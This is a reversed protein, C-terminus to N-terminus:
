NHKDTVGAQQITGFLYKQDPLHKMDELIWSFMPHARCLGAFYQENDVEGFDPQYAILHADFKVANRDLIEERVSLPTESISWTALFLGHIGNEIVNDLLALDSICLAGNKGGPYTDMDLMSIGISQLYYQQLASFPELDVIVYRGKFGLNFFLRCMSGYGGGFEVVTGFRDVRNGTASEFRALHYAHHVLNCSTRTDFPCRAPNGASSENLAKQWRTREPLNRLYEYESRSYKAYKVFMTESVVDWSLFNRPDSEQAIKQLSRMNNQWKLQAATMDESVPIELLRLRNKLEEALKLENATIPPLTNTQQKLRYSDYARLARDVARDIMTKRM